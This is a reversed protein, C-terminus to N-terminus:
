VYACMSQISHSIPLGDTRDAFYLQECVEPSLHFVRSFGLEYLWTLMEDPEFYSFRPEGRLEPIDKEALTDEQESSPLRFTFVIRSSSPLSLVFQFVSEIAPRTLYQTVGLWSFFTPAQFDYATTRLGEALTTHEFDIPCLLTNEPIALGRKKLCEAKYQQSAPQDVEIILLESAWDPQRYAFTDLGAGLIIYQRIGDKFAATLQDEAFRSRVVVRSRARARRPEQWKEAQSRIDGESSGDVLGISIPDNLIKPDGDLVHHAARFIATMIATQSAEREEM